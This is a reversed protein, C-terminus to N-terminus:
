GVACTELRIERRLTYKHTSMSLEAYILSDALLFVQVQEPGDRSIQVGVVPGFVNVDSRCRGSMDCDVRMLKVRMSSAQRM